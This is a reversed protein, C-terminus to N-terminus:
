SYEEEIINQIESFEFNAGSYDKLVNVDVLEKNSIISMLESESNATPIKKETGDFPQVLDFNKVSKHDVLPEYVIYNKNRSIADFFVTSIPGILMSAKEISDDIQMTDLKYFQKDLNKLYWEPNESPHPRFRVSKIGFHTLVKQISYLYSLLAGREQMIFRNSNEPSQTISHTIILVNDLNFELKGVNRTSYIPNGSVIIKERAVGIDVYTKKIKDSWVVLYDARNNDINNYTTPIGHLYIFTPLKLERFISIFLKELFAMDNSLFLAKIENDVIYRRLDSRLSVIKDEFSNGLLYYMDGNIFDYKILELKILTKVNGIYKFKRGFYFEPTILNFGREEFQASLYFPANFIVGNRINRNQAYKVSLIIKILLHFIFRIKSRCEYPRRFHNGYSYVKKDLEYKLLDLVNKSIINNEKLFTYYYFDKM